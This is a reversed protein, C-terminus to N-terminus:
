LSYGDAGQPAVIQVSAKARTCGVYFVRHEHDPERLMGQVTRATQDTLLLVHDAEAGKVGHITDIRVTPASTISRKRRLVSRYYERAEEPIGLLVAYWPQGLWSSPLGM